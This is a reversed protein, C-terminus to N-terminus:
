GFKKPKILRFDHKFAMWNDLIAESLTGKHNEDRIVFDKYTFAWYSAIAM